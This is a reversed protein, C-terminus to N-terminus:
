SRRAAEMRNPDPDSDPGPGPSPSPHSNPHCSPSSREPKGALMTLLAAPECTVTCAFATPRLEDPTEDYDTVWFLPVYTTPMATPSIRHSIAHAPVDTAADIHVAYRAVDLDSSGFAVKLLYHRKLAESSLARGSVAAQAAVSANTFAEPLYRHRRSPPTATVSHRSFAAAIM